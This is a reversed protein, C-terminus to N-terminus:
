SLRKAIERAMKARKTRPMKLYSEFAQSSWRGVAQIDEDSYGLSGMMSAIGSRFSHTSIKAKRYDLHKSLLEKLVKNMKRGTLPVGDTQRFAPKKAELPPCTELWKKYARVPCLLGGTTYVDVIVDRGIRDEKPSKLKVTLIEQESQGIKVKVLKIDRQLLTFSPDFSGQKRALLEHIRFAGSFAIVSVAWLLRKDGYNMKSENLTSKLLKLINVTVPMRKARKSLRDCITDMHCKGGIINKVLAPRLVPEDFGKVLHIQRLGSLYASVTSGKLRRAFLWSVFKLVHSTEMPFPFVVRMEMQCKGLLNQVTRYTSWTNHSLSHNAVVALAEKMKLSLGLNSFSNKDYLGRPGYKTMGNAKKPSFHLRRM